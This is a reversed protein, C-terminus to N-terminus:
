NIMILIHLWQKTRKQNQYFYTAVLRHILSHYNMTRYKIDEKYVKALKKKIDVLLLEKEAIIKKTGKEKKHATIEKLFQKTQKQFRTIKAQTKQERPRFFKLRIIRYGNIASGNVINGDSTKNFSRLRGFDSVELKYDNTFDFDFKVAKWKEGPYDKVM